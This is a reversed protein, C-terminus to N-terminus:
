DIARVAVLTKGTGTPINLIIGTDSTKFKNLAKQQYSRMTKEKTPTM